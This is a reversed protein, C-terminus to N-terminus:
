KRELVSLLGICALGTMANGLPLDSPPAAHNTAIDMM